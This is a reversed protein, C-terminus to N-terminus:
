IVRVVGPNHRLWSEMVPVENETAKCEDGKTYTQEDDRARSTIGSESSEEARMCTSETASQLESYNGVKRSKGMMMEIKLKEETFQRKWVNLLGPKVEFIKEEVMISIAETYKFRM